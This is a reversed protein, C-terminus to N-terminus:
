EAGGKPRDSDPPQDEMRPDPFGRAKCLEDIIEEFKAVKYSDLRLRREGGAADKYYLSCLGKKKYETLRTMSDFPIRLGGYTMGQDDITVRLRAAKVARLGVWLGVVTCGIGWYRQQEIEHKPKYWTTWNARSLEVQGDRVIVEAKGYDSFFYKIDGVSTGDSAFKPPGLREVVEDYRTVNSKLLAEFDADTPRDGLEAPVKDAGGLIPTLLQRAKVRNKALYGIKWDYFFYGAFALIALAFIGLQLADARAAGSELRM